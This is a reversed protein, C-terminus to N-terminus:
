LVEGRWSTHASSMSIDLQINEPIPTPLRGIRLITTAGYLTAIRLDNCHFYIVGREHDIELVGVISTNM